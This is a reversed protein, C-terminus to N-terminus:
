RRRKLIYNWDASSWKKEIASKLEEAQAKSDCHVVSDGVYREFSNSSYNSQMWHNFAYHLFLNALLPSIVGGQPTGLTRKEIGGNKTQVPAKLWRGCLAIGM